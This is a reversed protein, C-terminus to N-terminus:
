IARRAGPRQRSLVSAGPEILHRAKDGLFQVYACFSDGTASTPSDSSVASAQDIRYRCDVVSCRELLSGDGSQTRVHLQHMSRTASESDTTLGSQDKEGVATGRPCEGAPHSDEELEFSSRSMSNWVMRLSARFAFSVFSM